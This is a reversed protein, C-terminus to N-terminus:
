LGCTPDGMRIECTIYNIFYWLLIIWMLWVWFHKKQAMSTSNFNQQLTMLAGNFHQQPSMLTGNLYWYCCVLLGVSRIIWEDDVTYQHLVTPKLLRLFYVFGGVLCCFIGNLFFFNHSLLGIYPVCEEVLLRWSVRLHNNQSQVSLCVSM